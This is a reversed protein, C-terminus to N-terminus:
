VQLSQAFKQKFIAKSFRLAQSRCIVPNFHMKEFKVIAEVLFEISQETFLIGTQNNKITDLAGGKGYAIVPTGCAQSELAVIGFDEEQPMILAKSTQYLYRLLKDNVKGLLKIRSDLNQKYILRKLNKFEPGDGVIFLKRDLTACSKVALDVRKYPTLRSVVLYFDDDSVKKKNDEQINFFNTDVPPYIVMSDRKYFKKIRKQVVSSISLMMDPRQASLFDWVRLYSMLPLKVLSVFWNLYNFHKFNNYGPDSWLYRTPTLCYCVHKTKESTVVSKSESSTVSIVLDYNAFNLTEFAMPMLCTYWYSGSKAMPFNNLFSPIVKRFARAWKAKNPNYVSTFLVSQPFLENLVLLVREAGGWTNVKDYVLAVRIKKALM